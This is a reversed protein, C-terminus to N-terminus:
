NVAKSFLGLNGGLERNYFDQETHYPEREPLDDPNVVGGYQRAHRVAGQERIPNAGSSTLIELCNHRLAEIQSNVYDTSLNDTAMEEYRPVWRELINPDDKWAKRAITSLASLALGNGGLCKAINDLATKSPKEMMQAVTLFRIQEDTPAEIKRSLNKKRMDAITEDLIKECETRASDDAKKRLEMAEDVSKNYYDSGRHPELEKLRHLYKNRNLRQTDTFDRMANFLRETNSM